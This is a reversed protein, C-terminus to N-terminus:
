IRWFGWAALLYFLVNLQAIFRILSENFISINMGPALNLMMLLIYISLIAGLGAAVTGIFARM